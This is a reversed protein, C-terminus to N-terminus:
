YVNYYKHKIIIIMLSLYIYYEILNYKNVLVARIENPYKADILIRKTM